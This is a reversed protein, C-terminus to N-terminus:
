AGPSRRTRRLEARFERGKKGGGPSTGKLVCATLLLGAAALTSWVGALREGFIAVVLFGAIVAWGEWSVPSLGWGGRGRPGFWLKKGLLPTTRM